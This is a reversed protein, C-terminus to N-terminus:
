AEEKKSRLNYLNSIADNFTDRVKVIKEEYHDVVKDTIYGALIVSGAKVLVEGTKNVAEPTAKTIIGKVVAGVPISLVLKLLMIIMRRM